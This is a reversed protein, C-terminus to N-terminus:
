CESVLKSTIRAELAQLAAQSYSSIYIQGRINTGKELDRECALIASIETQFV